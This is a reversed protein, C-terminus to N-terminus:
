VDSPAPDDPYIPHLLFGQWHNQAYETRCGDEIAHAPFVMNNENHTKQENDSGVKKDSSFELLGDPVPM